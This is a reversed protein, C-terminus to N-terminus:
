DEDRLIEALKQFGVNIADGDARRIARMGAMDCFAQLGSFMRNALLRQRIDKFTAPLDEL